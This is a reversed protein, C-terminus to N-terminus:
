LHFRGQKLFNISFFELKLSRVVTLYLPIESVEVFILGMKRAMWIVREVMWASHSENGLYDV